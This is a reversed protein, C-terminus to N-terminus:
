SFVKGSWKSCMVGLGKMLVFIRHSNTYIPSSNPFGINNMKLKECETLFSFYSRRSPSRAERVFAFAVRPPTPIITQTPATRGTFSGGLHIPKFNSSAKAFGKLHRPVAKRQIDLKFIVGSYSILFVM